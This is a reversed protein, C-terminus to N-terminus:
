KEERVSLKQRKKMQDAKRGKTKKKKAYAGTLQMLLRGANKRAIGRRVNRQPSSFSLLAFFFDQFPRCLFWRQNYCPPPPSNGRQSNAPTTAHYGLVASTNSEQLSNNDHVGGGGRPSTTLLSSRLVREQLHMRVCRSAERSLFTVHRYGM